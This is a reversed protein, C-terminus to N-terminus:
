FLRFNVEINVQVAVPHGDKMAPQFRWSKVAAIAKEDLGMGLSRQVRVDRPTGDAGIVVWLVVNGQFKAARAEESYEPEPDYIPHPASVGSGVSYPGNGIGGGSGPGVGPGDGIGAGTGHNDGIGGGYGIGNSPTLLKSFLDGTQVKPFTVDPPGIVTPDVSLRPQLNRVLVQPPALQESSFPPPAGMSAKVKDDDGGGGGGHTSKSAPPLPYDALSIVNTTDISKIAPHHAAWVGSVVVLALATVHMFLSAALSRQNLPYDQTSAAFLSPLVTAPVEVEQKIRSAIKIRSAPISNFAPRGTLEAKLQAKFELQPLFKLESAIGALEGLELDTNVGATQTGAFINNVAEDLEDAISFNNM